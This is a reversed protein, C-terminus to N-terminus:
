HIAKLEQKFLKLAERKSYYFYQKTVLNDNKDLAYFKHAGQYTKEYQIIM